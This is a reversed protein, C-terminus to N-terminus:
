CQKKGGMRRIPSAILSALGRRKEKSIIVVLIALVIYGATFGWRVAPMPILLQVIFLVFLALGEWVNFNFDSLIAVAFLSQAATLAVEEVQRGDM